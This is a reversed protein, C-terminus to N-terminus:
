WMGRHFALLLARRAGVLSDLDHERGTVADRLRFDPARDGLRPPRSRSPM